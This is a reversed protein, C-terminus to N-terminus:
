QNRIISTMSMIQGLIATSLWRSMEPRILGQKTSFLM